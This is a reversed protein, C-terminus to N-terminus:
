GFSADRYEGVFVCQNCVMHSHKVQNKVQLVGSITPLDARFSVAAKGKRLASIEPYTNLLLGRSSVSNSVSQIELGMHATMRAFFWVTATLAGFAKGLSSIKSRM